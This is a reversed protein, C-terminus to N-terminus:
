RDLARPEPQRRANGRTLRDFELTTGGRLLRRARNVVYDWQFAPGPDVKNAQIHFHGLLGHYRSLEDDSLKHNVLQGAGDRPYDCPLKPFTKCL